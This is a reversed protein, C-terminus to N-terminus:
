HQQRRRVTEALAHVGASFVAVPAVPARMARAAEPLAALASTCRARMEAITEAPRTRRGDAMVRQLLPRTGAPPPEDRLAIVDSTASLGTSDDRHVQKAGPATEKGPSLKMVPRGDYAVLKYASDLSPADASVGMRTGVGFVDVPVGAVVLEEIDHEDLGGSVVIRASALGAADLLVRSERVLAALDGSDIRIGLRTGRTRLGLEDIVRIATEVGRLTDYTDVLFTVQEPHEAAFARFAGAEDAFAEIFSHAMTGSAVLGFRRAAEVNSTAVFGTIASARAAMIGAEVGHTRRFSFDVVDRGRAALVMRAAKSAIASQHTIHNLLVTEVLQAEAIPATVELLPENAVVIEGEPVAWVEGTFRLHRWAEVVDGGFGLEDRAFRLEDAAFGFEELFTLCSELGAAVLFGREPPLKRAFLSFTADGGMGNRLYTAAMELEYRDTLLAGPV